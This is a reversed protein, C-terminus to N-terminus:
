HHVNSRDGAPILVHVEPIQIRKKKMGNMYKPPWQMLDPLQASPVLCESQFASGIPPSEHAPGALEDSNLTESLQLFFRFNPILKRSSTSGVYM